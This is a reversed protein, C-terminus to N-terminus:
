TGQSRDRDSTLRRARGLLAELAERFEAHDEAYRKWAWEGGPQALLWGFVAGQSKWSAEDLDGRRYHEFAERLNEFISQMLMNFRLLDERSLSQHDALGKLYLAAVEPERVLELRVALGSEISSHVASQGTVKASQRIQLALYALTIVTAIAAILEGLSGLEQITVDM